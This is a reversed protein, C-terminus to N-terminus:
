SIINWWQVKIQIKKKYSLFTNYEEQYIILSSVALKSYLYLSEKLM